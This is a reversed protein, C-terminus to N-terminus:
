EAIKKALEEVEKDDELKNFDIDNKNFEVFKEKSIELLKILEDKDLEKIESYLKFVQHEEPFKNLLRDLKSEENKAMSLFLNLIDLCSEMNKKKKKYIFLFYYIKMKLIKEEMIEEM